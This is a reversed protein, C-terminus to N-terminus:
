AAWSQRYRDLLTRASAEPDVGKLMAPQMDDRGAYMRGALQMIGTVLDAPLATKGLSYDIEADGPLAQCTADHHSQRFHVFKGALLRYESAPLETLDDDDESARYAIRDVSTIWLGPLQLRRRPLADLYLRWQQAGIPIGCYGEARAVAAATIGTMLTTHETDIELREMVDHVAVPLDSVGRIVTIHEYDQLLM